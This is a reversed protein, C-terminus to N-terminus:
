SVETRTSGRQKPRLGPTSFIFRRRRHRDADSRVMSQRTSADSLRRNPRSRTVTPTRIVTPTSTVTPSDPFPDTVQNPEGFGSFAVSNSILLNSDPIEEISEAQVLRGFADILLEWKPYKPDTSYSNPVSYRTVMGGGLTGDGIRTLRTVDPCAEELKYPFGYGDSVLDSPVAWDTGPERVASPKREIAIIEVTSNDDYTFVSRYDNGSKHHMWRIGDVEVGQETAVSLYEFDYSDVLTPSSCDVLKSERQVGSIGECGLALLSLGAAAIVILTSAFWLNHHQLMQYDARFGAAFRSAFQILAEASVGHMSAITPNESTASRSLDREVSQRLDAPVHPNSQRGFVSM